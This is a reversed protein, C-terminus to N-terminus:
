EAQALRALLAPAVDRLVLSVDGSRAADLAPINPLLEPAKQCLPMLIDRLQKALEPDQDAESLLEVLDAMAGARGADAILTTPATTEIKVKELWLKNSDIAAISALINARLHGELGFLEGHAPSSGTVTVRVARPVHSEEDLLSELRLGVTASVDVLSDCGSVDVELAEWRLVDIFLREVTVKRDDDVTVMVAGRRGIERINRGQLNGPFVITSRGRWVQHEHVHGLAWYDYGKAHLEDVTCPAYNAHATSGELATHLVGINFYGPVPADYGTVLNETVAKTKFSRGHLAVKLEDILHVKAKKASFTKVNAPLSLKLTMESEADHNGYLVYVSIGARHLRGMQACFYLGTSFDPWTGDYLDGAIVMFDVQEDIAVRVLETFADRTANRLQEAPADQYARLGILPSDIHIDAAHIFRM